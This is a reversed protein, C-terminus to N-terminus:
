RSSRYLNTIPRGAVWNWQLHDRTDGSRVDRLYVKHNKKYVSLFDVNNAFVDIHMIDSDHILLQKHQYFFFHTTLRTQFGMIM